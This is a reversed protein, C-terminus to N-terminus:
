HDLELHFIDMEPLRAVFAWNEVDEISDGTIRQLIGVIFSSRIARVFKRWYKPSCCTRKECSASRLTVTNWPTLPAPFVEKKAASLQHRYPSPTSPMPCIM